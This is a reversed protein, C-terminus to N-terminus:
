SLLNFDEIFHYILHILQGFATKFRYHPRQLLYLLLHNTDSKDNLEVVGVQLKRLLRGEDLVGLVWELNEDIAEAAELGESDVVDDFL